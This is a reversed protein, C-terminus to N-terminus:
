KQIILRNHLFIIKDSIFHRCNKTVHKEQNCVTKGNSQSSLQETRRTRISFLTQLPCQSNRFMLLKKPLRRLNADMNMHAEGTCGQVPTAPYQAFNGTGWVVRMLYGIESSRELAKALCQCALKKIFNERRAIAQLSLIPSAPASSLHMRDPFLIVNTM